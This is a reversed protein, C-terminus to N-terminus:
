PRWTGVHYGVGYPADSYAITVASPAATFAGALVQWAARGDLVLEACQEPDLSILASPDGAALAAALDTEVSEARPDFAGPAKATLTAAGDAIVLLGRPTDDADLGARLQRGLQTCEDRGADVPVIHVEAPVAPAVRDRLWGAILAPLPLDPDVDGAADPGLGVRVDAGYGRFTGTATAAVRGAAPGTGVVVWRACDAIESTATLAAARLAETEGAVLGNLEPVLLPPSPVFVAATLV